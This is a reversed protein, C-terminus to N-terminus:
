EVMEVTYDQYNYYQINECLIKEVSKLWDLVQKDMVIVPRTVKLKLDVVKTEGTTKHTLKIKMKEGKISNGRWACM